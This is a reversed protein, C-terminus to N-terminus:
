SKPPTPEEPKDTEDEKPEPQTPKEPKKPKGEEESPQAPKEAPKGVTAAGFYFGVVAGLLGVLWDPLDPFENEGIMVAVVMVFLIIFAIIARVSGQPLGLARKSWEPVSMKATKILYISVGWLVVLVAIVFIILFRMYPIIQELNPCTVNDTM